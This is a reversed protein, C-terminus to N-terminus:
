ATQRHKQAYRADAPNKRTRKTQPAKYRGEGIRLQPNPFINKKRREDLLAQYASEPEAVLMGALEYLVKRKSPNLSKVNSVFQYEELPLLDKLEPREKPIEIGNIPVDGRLQSETIGYFKALSEVSKPNLHESEGKM